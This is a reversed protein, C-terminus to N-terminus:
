NSSLNGTKRIRYFYVFLLVWATIFCLGGLPTVPGLWSCAIGTAGSTSLFYISGSFLLIGATFLYYAATILRSEGLTRAILGLLVLAFGHYFQYRVGTEYATLDDPTIGQASKLGHAGFAGIIVALALFKTGTLLSLRIM